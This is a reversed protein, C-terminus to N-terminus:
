KQIIVKPDQSCGNSGAVTYKYPCGLPNPCVAASNSIPGSSVSGNQPVTFDPGATFPSPATFHLAYSGLADGTWQVQDGNPVYLTVPDPNANCNTIAVTKVTFGVPPEPKHCGTIALVFAVSLALSIRSQRSTM